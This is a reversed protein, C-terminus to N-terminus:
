TQPGEGRETGTGFVTLGPAIGFFSQQPFNLSPADRITARSRACLILHKFPSRLLTFSKPTTAVDLRFGGNLIKM